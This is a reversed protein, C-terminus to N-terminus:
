LFSTTSRMSVMCRWLLGFGLCLVCASDQFILQICVLSLFLLGIIVTASLILEKTTRGMWCYSDLICFKRCSFFIRVEVMSGVLVKWAWILFVTFVLTVSIGHSFLHFYMLKFREAGDMLTEYLYVFRGLRNAGYHVPVIGM